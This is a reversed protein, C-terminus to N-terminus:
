IRSTSSSPPIAFAMSCPSGLSFISSAAASFLGTDIASFVQDNPDVHRGQFLLGGDFGQFHVIGRNPIRLYAPNLIDFGPAILHREAERSARYWHAKVPSPFRSSCATWHARSRAM